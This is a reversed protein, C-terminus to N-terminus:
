NETGAASVRAIIIEKIPQNLTVTQCDYVHQYTRQQFSNPLSDSVTEIMGEM